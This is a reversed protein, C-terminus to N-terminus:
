PSPPSTTAGLAATADVLANMREVSAVLAAATAGPSALTAAVTTAFGAPALAFSAAIELARKEHLFYCRNVAFLAQLLCAASRLLCAAVFFTDGRQAPKRANEVMFGAEWTNRHILAERLRPPYPVTRAHLTAFTGDRDVHARGYHVEAMYIHTHFGHGYGPQCHCAPRGAECEDIVHAVKAVDRYLWDVRVGRVTLWGGGNIWPGWGGFDTLPADPHRDDLETALAQLVGLAPPRAPDYFIGLDVDSREDADGRARSGGLVVAAVGPVAGLRAAVQGAVEM